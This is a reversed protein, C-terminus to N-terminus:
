VNRRLGGANRGACDTGVRDGGACESDSSRDANEYGWCPHLDGYDYGSYQGHDWISVRMQFYGISDADGYDLNRLSSEVLGAM